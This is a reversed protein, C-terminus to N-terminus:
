FILRLSKRTPLLTLNVSSWRHIMETILQERITGTLCREPDCEPRRSEKIRESGSLCLNFHKWETKKGSKVSWVGRINSGSSVSRSPLVELGCYKVFVSLSPQSREKSRETQIKEVDNLPPKLYMKTMNPRNQIQIKEDWKPWKKKKKKCDKTTGNTMKCSNKTM